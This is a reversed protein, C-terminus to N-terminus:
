KGLEAELQNIRYRVIFRKLFEGAIPLLFLAAGLWLHGLVATVIGATRWQADEILTGIKEFDEKTM